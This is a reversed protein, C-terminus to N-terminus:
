VRRGVLWGTGFVFAGVILLATIRKPSGIVNMLRTWLSLQPLEVGAAIANYRSPTFEGSSLEAFTHVRIDADQDRVIVELYNDFQASLVRSSVRSQLIQLSPPTEMSTQFYRVGDREISSFKLPGYDGSFVAKVGARALLPHVETWWRGDAPEWWLLHHSFAFTPADSGSALSEGLWRLQGADLDAGRIARDGTQTERISTSNLLLLRVGAVTVVQPIAGYRERWIDRTGPDSIDHNGPVRYIPIGLKDLAADVETWERTVRERKPPWTDYDGWVSDGTLVVFQPKLEKVEDLVEGLKPNLGGPEGGRIHGLVVFRVESVNTVGAWSPVAFAASICTAIVVSMMILRDTM